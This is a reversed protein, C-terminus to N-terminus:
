RAAAARPARKTVTRIHGYEAIEGRRVVRAALRQTRRGTGRLREALWLTGHRADIIRSVGTTLWRLAQVLDGEDYQIRCSLKVAASPRGSGGHRALFCRRLSSSWATGRNVIFGPRLNRNYQEVPLDDEEITEGGVDARVAARRDAARLQDAR